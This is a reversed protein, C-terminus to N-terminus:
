EFYTKGCLDCIKSGPRYEEIEIRFKDVLQTQSNERCEPCIGM